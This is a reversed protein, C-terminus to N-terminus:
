FARQAAVAIRHRISANADLPFVAGVVGDASSDVPQLALGAAAMIRRVPADSAHCAAAVESGRQASPSDTTARASSAPPTAVHLRFTRPTDVELVAYDPM